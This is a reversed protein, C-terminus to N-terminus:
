LIEGTGRKLFQGDGSKGLWKEGDVILKGRLFVKEPYGALEWGEYLNYDTRQHSQAVGYKVRKEPDWIVIDADAGPVLAGKRPYLGFIKASNTSMYAVFQNPTIHGTQVGYTWLIPMRDQIGPLGNPIKTFNYKGLEKGAIAIEKGEYVIPQTGDFFFPCHDTGITQLTGDHLGQWLRANDMETRMPPSCIWKSGDERSLADETFFLYQPCTEGMVKVGRERAYRLMDVEGGANMHVIYVPSDAQEAMAAMRLTAEVAGWSPRTLAHWEPDTHGDALAQQVLTEIVDGNECHAMMLMGNEKAIRLAKFISGDDIRLRGNYATFVKLTQIGMEMLSPIEKAIKDSFQTLNMHFSYDIAAKAAKEMWLDVSYKFGEHELVVFDMATTTGGFAAAKHGTYHDDSSVTDFMPLDLHVHPDIGGPMILKGTADIVDASPHTLDKGIQVIIEGEILIDSQFTDSATILTGNKILTAM